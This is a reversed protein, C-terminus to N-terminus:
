TSSVNILNFNKAKNIGFAVSPAVAIGAGAIATKKLFSRRENM